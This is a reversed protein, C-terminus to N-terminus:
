SRTRSAQDRHAATRSQRWWAIREERPANALRILIHGHCARPVCFCVLDRGSLENLSRLLDHQNALWREYKAIVGARDGDRGIIFPNGWKSGRGIYVAGPPIGVIHKNLIKCM